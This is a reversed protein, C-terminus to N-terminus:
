FGFKGIGKPNLYHTGGGWTLAYRAMMPLMGPGDDIFAVATVSHRRQYRARAGETVYDFVVHVSQAGAEYSNDVIERAARATTRYHSHRQSKVAQKGSFLPYPYATPLLDLFYQQRQIETLLDLEQSDLKRLKNTATKAM